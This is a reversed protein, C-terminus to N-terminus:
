KDNTNGLNSEDEYIGASFHATQVLTVGNYLVVFGINGIQSDAEQSFYLAKVIFNHLEKSEIEEKMPNFAECREPFENVLSIIEETSALITKSNNKLYRKLMKTNVQKVNDHAVLILDINDYPAQGNAIKKQIKPPIGHKSKSEDYLADILIKNEGVKILFGAKGVFTIETIQNQAYSMVSICTLLLFITLSKMNM